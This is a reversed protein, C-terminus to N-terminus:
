ERLHNLGDGDPLMRDLVIAGYTYVSLLEEARIGDTAEDVSYGRAGLRRAIAQRLSAEDEVVLVRMGVDYGLWYQPALLLAM